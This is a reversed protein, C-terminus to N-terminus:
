NREFIGCGFKVERYSRYRLITGIDNPTTLRLALRISSADLVPEIQGGWEYRGDM